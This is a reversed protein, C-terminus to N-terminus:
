RPTAKGPSPFAFRVRPDATLRTALDRLQSGTLQRNELKVTYRGIDSPGATIEGGIETLVDQMQSAMVSDVFAIDLARDREGAIEPLTRYGGSQGMSTSFPPVLWLLGALLIAGTTGVFAFRAFSPMQRASRGAPTRVVPIIPPEDLTQLLKDFGSQRSIHVAPQALIASRLRQQQKLERRCVLCDRTHQEITDRQSGALSGNVLWPLLEFARDHSIHASM